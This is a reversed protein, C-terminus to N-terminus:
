SGPQSDELFPNIILDRYFGGPVTITLDNVAGDSAGVRAQGSSPETLTDTTSSFDVTLGGPNTLGSVTPGTTGGNLLINVEDAQPHNGPTFSVAAHAPLTLALGLGAALATSALSKRLLFM